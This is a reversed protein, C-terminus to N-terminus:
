PYTWTQVTYWTGGSRMEIIMSASADSSIRVSGNTSADGRLYLYKAGTMSINDSFAAATYFSVLSSAFRALESWGASYRSISFYDGPVASGFRSGIAYELSGSSQSLRIGQNSADNFAVIDTGAGSNTLKLFQGFGLGTDSRIFVAGGFDGTTGVNLATGVYLKKAIGVGGAIIVGGTVSSSSDTTNSATLVASFTKAGTITETGAIHVLGSDFTTSVGLTGTTLSLSSALAINTLYGVGAVDTSGILAQATGAPIAFYTKGGIYLDKQIGVGGAFVGSGTTTSTSQTTSAIAIASSFSVPNDWTITQSGNNFRVRTVNNLTAHNRGIQLFNSTSVVTNWGLIIVDSASTATEASHGIIIANTSGDSYNLGGILVSNSGQFAYANQGIAISDASTEAGSNKGIAIANPATTGVYTGSGIAIGYSAGDIQAGAGIAIGSAGNYGSAGIGITIGDTILYSSANKGITVCGAANDVYGNPAVTVSDASVHVYAASGIAVARASGGDLFTGNGLLVAWSSDGTLYDDIYASQGVVTVGQALTSSMGAGAGFFESLAFGHAASIDGGVYLNKAIGVGGLILVGGSATSSSDTTNGFTQIGTFTQAALGAFTDSRDPVAWTRTTATSIGGLEVLFNKSTDLLPAIKVYLADAETATLYGPHPDSAAVHDAIGADVLARVEAASLGPNLAGVIDALSDLSTQLAYQNHPDPDRVHPGVIAAENPTRLPQPTRAM